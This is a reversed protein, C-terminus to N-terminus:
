ILYDVLSILNAKIYNDFEKLTDQMEKFSALTCAENLPLWKYDQHEDSLKVEAKSNILEALFYHVDKPKGKVMYTTERKCEMYIKLDSKLLGSEEETERLATTMLETEGPDVHGKPPTWHHIGYSAQLLLYEITPTFRRFIVFGAAVKNVM